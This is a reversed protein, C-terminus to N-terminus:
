SRVLNSYSDLEKEGDKSLQIELKVFDKELGKQKPAKLDELCKRWAEQAKPSLVGHQMYSVLLGAQLVSQKTVQFSDFFAKLDLLGGEKNLSDLSWIALHKVGASNFPHWYREVYSALGVMFWYPPQEGLTMNRLAASASAFRIHGLSFNDNGQKNGPELEEYLTVGVLKGSNPDSLIFTSWLSSMNADNADQVNQGLQSYDNQDKVMIVTTKPADAPLPQDLIAYVKEISADAHKLAQQGFEYTCTTTLTVHKGELEWPNTFDAHVKDAEAQTVWKDGIKFEGKKMHELEEPTVWVGNFLTMGKELREKEVPTMWKKVGDVTHPVLGKELREYDEAPVWEGKWKKLGLKAKEAEESKAKERDIERKTLWKGEYKEYGLLARAEAHDTDLKIVQRLLRKSDTKLNNTDAWQALQFLQTADKADQGGIEAYKKEFEAKADQAALAPVPAPLALPSPSAFLSVIGAILCNTAVM